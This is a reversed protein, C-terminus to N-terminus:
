QEDDSRGPPNVEHQSGVGVGSEGTVQRSCLSLLLLSMVCARVCRKGAKAKEEMETEMEMQTPGLQQKTRPWPQRASLRRRSAEAQKGRWSSPHGSSAEGRAM